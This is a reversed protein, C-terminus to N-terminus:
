IIDQQISKELGENRKFRKNKEFIEPKEKSLKLIDAMSFYKRECYLENYVSLTVEFDEKEDLTWRLSSYDTTNEINLVSFIEPHKHLYPTVHERESKLTANQWAITLAKYTFVEVDLGDPFTPKITNSVYDRKSKLAADVVMDVVEADIFPCDATIRIIYDEDTADFNSAARFYRDLVDDESGRYCLINYKSCCHEIVDDIKDNTTALLIKDIHKAKQVRRVVHVLEPVGHIDLIVKGPLRSSNMRAQIIAFVMNCVEKM